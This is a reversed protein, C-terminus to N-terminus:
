LDNPEVKEISNVVLIPHTASILTMMTVRNEVMPLILAEKVNGKLALLYLILSTEEEKQKWTKETELDTTM